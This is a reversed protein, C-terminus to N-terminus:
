EIIILGNVTENILINNNEPDRFVELEDFELYTTGSNLIKMKVEM